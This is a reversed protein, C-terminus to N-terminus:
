EIRDWVYDTLTAEGREIIVKLVFDKWADLDDLQKNNM